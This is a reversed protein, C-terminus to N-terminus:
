INDDSFLKHLKKDISHGQSESQSEYSKQTTGKDNYNPCLPCVKRTGEKILKYEPCIHENGCKWWTGSVDDTSELIQFSRGSIEDKVEGIYELSLNDIQSQVEIHRGPFSATTTLEWVIDVLKERLEVVEDSICCILEAQVAPISSSRKMMQERSKRCAKDDIVELQLLLRLNHCEESICIMDAPTVNKKQVREMIADLSGRAESLADKCIHSHSYTSRGEVAKKLGKVCKFANLHNMRHAMDHPLLPMQIVEKLHKLFWWEGKSKIHNELQLKKIEDLMTLRYGGTIRMAGMMKSKVMNMELMIKKTIKGYRRCNRIPIACDPLPCLVHQLRKPELTYDMHSAMYDDLVGVECVHGCDELKVFQISHKSAISTMIESKQDEKLNCACICSEGCFGICMHNCRPLRKLCPQNCPSRDCVQGCKRTCLKHPCQWICPRNCPVCPRDCLKNCRWKHHKCYQECKKSCPLCELSCDRECTHVCLLLKECRETCPQHKKRCKSCTGPCQHGCHLFVQCRHPCAFESKPIYCERNETHGCDLTETVLQTCKLEDNDKKCCVVTHEHGCPLSVQCPYKCLVTKVDQYCPVRQKHECKPIVKDVIGECKRVCIEGCRKSCKHGEDCIVKSCPHQCSPLLHARDLPHCPRGCMHGCPLKEECQKGCGGLPVRDFDRSNMVTTVSDEHCQCVLPLGPGIVKYKRAYGQIQSWADSNLSLIEFNGICYFGMKARSLAVCIRNEVKLFGIQEEENSRVLSLLIIDNEEGQFNDISAIRVGEFDGKPMMNHQILHLQGSYAALVTIQKPTYGQQILYRCLDVIFSAEHENAHTTTEKDSREEPVRHDVFFVDHKLGKINPYNTVMEANQLQPYIHSIYQSIEPRMRHQHSLRKYPLGRRVFREFLSVDLNFDKALKHVTPTPRLQQHDGILILHQCEDTLATIVHAEFIEAAEEVVMVKPKIEQLLSHYKAAGTTTMGIVKASQLIARDEQKLIEQHSRFASRYEEDLKAKKRMYYDTYEKIWYRYLMWRDRGQQVDWVDKVNVADKKSMCETSQIEKALNHQFDQWRSDSHQSSRIISKKPLVHRRVEDYHLHIQEEERDDNRENLQFSDGEEIERLEHARVDDEVQVMDGRMTGSHTDASDDESDTAPEEQNMDYSSCTDHFGEIVDIDSMNLLNGKVVDSRRVMLWQCLISGQGTSLWTQLLSTYHSKEMFERLANEDLINFIPLCLIAGVDEIERALKRLNQQNKVRLGYVNLPVDKNHRIRDRINKLRFQFLRQSNCRGGIRIIGDQLFDLLGELFQDLAHNTYCIVLIPSPDNEGIVWLNSNSLVTQIVKLGVFTKGTGPPGQIVAIESRLAHRIAISQSDDCGIDEAKPWHADDFININHVEDTPKDTYLKSLDYPLGSNATDQLYAPPGVSMEPHPSLIYNLFPMDDVKLEQLRKLVHRYSEFYASTEVMQLPVDNPINRALGEQTEGELLIEFLGENLLKVDRQYITGLVLHQGFGDMSLCVLSGQLLRRSTEWHIRKYGKPNFWVTYVIGSDTGATNLIFINHYINVGRKHRQKKRRSQLEPSEIMMNVAERLPLMFDQHLLRFHIDLYENADSYNDYLRNERVFAFDENTLTEPTPIILILRFDNPPPKDSNSDDEGCRSMREMIQDRREKLNKVSQIIEADEIINKGTLCNVTADIDEIPIDVGNLRELIERCLQIINRVVKPYKDTQEVSRESRMKVLLVRLNQKWFNTNKISSLLNVLNEVMTHTECVSSLVEIALILVDIERISDSDLLKLLGDKVRLLECLRDSSSQMHRVKQLQRYGVRVLQARTTRNDVGGTRSGQGPQRGRGRIPRQGRGSLCQQMTDM